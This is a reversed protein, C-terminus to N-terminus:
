KGKSKRESFAVCAKEFAKAPFNGDAKGPSNATRSTLEFLRTLGLANSSFLLKKQKAKRKRDKKEAPKELLYPRVGQKSKKHLSDELWDYQVIKLSRFRDTQKVATDHKTSVRSQILLSECIIAKSNKYHEPTCILHTIKDNVSASFTGGNAEVWNQIQRADLKSGKELLVAVTCAKLIGRPSM